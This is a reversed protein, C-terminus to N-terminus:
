MWDSDLGIWEYAYVYANAYVYAYAICLVKPIPGSLSILGPWPGFPDPTLHAWSWAPGTWGPWTGFPGAGM